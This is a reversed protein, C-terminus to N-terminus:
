KIYIHFKGVCKQFEKCFFAKIDSILEEYVSKPVTLDTIYIQDYKTIDNKFLEEFTKEIDSIEISHYEFKQNTLKLLIIPSIGDLDNHTILLNKM